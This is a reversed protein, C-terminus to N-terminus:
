YQRAPDCWGIATTTIPDLSIAYGPGSSGAVSTGYVQMNKSLQAGVAADSPPTVQGPVKADPRVRKRDHGNM